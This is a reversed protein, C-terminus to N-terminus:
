DAGLFGSRKLNDTMIITRTSELVFEMNNTDTACTVHIFSDNFEDDILCDKFKQIFYLVGHDSDKTPGAYDCFPRQAAIDSYQIKEMFIDKKNLFLIISTNAFARNNCVSRFLELAEVMRNTRKAEALSQDYESLAAVFIVATVSDFCDIWKRRESRQGGVDYVEFDIGDIRYKEMVVQTTRVRAILIDQTTPKYDPSAIRAIDNLYDKHSDIVNVASRKVWVQKITQSKWLVEMAKYHALFLKADNNAALGARPSNGVWDTKGGNEGVGSDGNATGPDQASATGSNDVLYARLEDYAERCTMSNDAISANNKSERDLEEELGLDGLHTVLKRMAVVINSRAVVGYMKLDEDSRNANGYLLRMQKFITSKGSEGAGLLLMKIKHLDENRARELESDIQRSEAISTKSSKNVFSTASDRDRYSPDADGGGINGSGGAPTAPPASVTQVPTSSGCGM